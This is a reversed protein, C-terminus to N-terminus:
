LDLIDNLNALTTDKTVIIVNDDKEITDQGSPTILTGGRIIGAVLLHKKLEMDRIAVGFKKFSDTARFELVETTHDIIQFIRQVSESEKNGIIRVFRIIQDATSNKTSVASYIGSKQLMDYYSLQDIKTIVKPVDHSAAFMSMIINQEDLSSLAVFADTHDLGEDILLQQDTGDGCLIETKDLVEALSTCRKKNKEIVKAHIGARELQECLYFATRSGGVIMVNRAQKNWGLQKFFATINRTTATLFLRDEAEIAFNGTPIIAKGDRQVACILVKAKFSKGLDKLSIGVLPSNEDVRFEVLEVKGRSFNNVTIASPFRLMRSIEMAAEYQPNVMLSLGLDGENKFLELYEPKSARAITKKVGLKNAIICCLINLEDDSTSAILLDASGVRAEKLVESSACNGIVGKVDCSNIADEIKQSNSDIVVINHGEKSLQNMLTTGVSGLGSIIIDM